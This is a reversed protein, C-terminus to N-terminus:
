RKRILFLPLALLMILLGTQGTTPVRVPQLTPVPTPTVTPTFTPSPTHTPTHTPTNTPLPTNTPAATPTATPGLTTRYASYVDATLDRSDAWSVVPNLGSGTDWLAISSSAAAGISFDINPNAGPAASVEEEILWTTLDSFDCQSYWVEHTSAPNADVWSAHFKGSPGSEAALSIAAEDGVTDNFLAYPATAGPDWWSGNDLLLAYNGFVFGIDFDNGSAQQYSNVILWHGSAAGVGHTVEIVGQEYSYVGPSGVSWPGPDAGGATSRKWSTAADTSLTLLTFLKFEDAPLSAAMTCFLYGTTSDYVLDPQTVQAFGPSAQSATSYGSFSLGYNDSYDTFYNGDALRVSAAILRTGAQYLRPLRYAEAVGQVVGMTWSGSGVNKYACITNANGSYLGTVGVCVRITGSVPEIVVLSPDDGQDYLLSFGNLSFPSAWTAGGDTSRMIFYTGWGTPVDRDDFFCAWLNGDPGTVMDVKGQGYGSPSDVILDKEAWFDRSQTESPRPFTADVSRIVSNEGDHMPSPPGAQFGPITLTNLAGVPSSVGCICVVAMVILGLRKM